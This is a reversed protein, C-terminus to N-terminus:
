TGGAPPLGLKTRGHYDFYTLGLTQMVGWAKSGLRKM